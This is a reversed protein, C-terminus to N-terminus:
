WKERGAVYQGGLGYKKSLDEWCNASMTTELLVGTPSTASKHYIKAVYEGFSLEIRAYAFEPSSIAAEYEEKCVECPTQSCNKHQFRIAECEVHPRDAYGNADERTRAYNWETKYGNEYSVSVSFWRGNEKIEIVRPLQSQTTV